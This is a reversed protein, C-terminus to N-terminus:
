SQRSEAFRICDPYEDSLSTIGKRVFDAICVLREKSASGISEVRFCLRGRTSVDKTLKVGATEELVQLATRLLATEASCVIDKGKKLFGAHGSAEVKRVCGDDSCVLLVDTM